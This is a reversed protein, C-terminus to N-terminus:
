LYRGGSCRCLSSPKSCRPKCQSTNQFIYRSTFIIFDSKGFLLFSGFIHDCVFSWFLVLCCSKEVAWFISLVQSMSQWAIALEHKHALPCGLAKRHEIRCYTNAKAL